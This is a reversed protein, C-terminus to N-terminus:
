IPQANATDPRRLRALVLAALLCRYLSCALLSRPAGAAKRLLRASLLTSAFASAAGAALPAAAGAPPRRRSLRAGQLASAALMVPLAAHWSLSRAGSRSFGRARAATLTAGHRSVGPVLAVAQALGLALGDAPSADDHSREGAGPRADAIAMAVGGGALGAAISRPGGLRREVAPGLALGAIAAPLLSLAITSLRRGDLRRAAHALEGRMDIALAAGAGAHLAVEFSKRLEGDLRSYPWGLLFPVLTTHASSSVPLMETPGQLVGLAVAQRLPLPSSGPSM